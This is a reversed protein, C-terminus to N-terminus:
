GAAVEDGNGQQQELREAAVLWDDEVPEDQVVVVGGTAPAPVAPTAAADELKPPKKLAVFLRGIRPESESEEPVQRTAKQAARGVVANWGGATAGGMERRMIKLSGDVHCLSVGKAVEMRLLARAATARLALLTTEISAAMPGPSMGARPAARVIVEESPLFLTNFGLLSHHMAPDADLAADVEDVTLGFRPQMLLLANYPPEPKVSSRAGGAVAATAAAARAAAEAAAAQSSRIKICQALTKRPALVFRPTKFLCVHRHPEPDQSESDFGFDEALSHVFARQHSPMPKLRLRREAPDSAFVRLEREYTQAFVPNERYLELTTDSFPVHDDMHTDPDINLAQALRRNRQLRLCEDDCKLLQPSEDGDHGQLRPNSLTAGCRAEQKRVQCACTILVQAKCVTDEKCAICFFLLLPLDKSISLFLSLNHHAYLFPQSM